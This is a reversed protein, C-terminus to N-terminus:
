DGPRGVVVARSPLRCRARGRGSRRHVAPPCRPRLRRRARAGPTGTGTRPDDWFIGQTGNGHHVDWDVILVREGQDALAAAGIAVNNLLCFGMATDALAHHGPPRAAVFAAIGDGARLADLAALVGGAALLATDWSDRAAVTDADLHGGGSACFAALAELYRPDHVRALEETLARRPALAVVADTLGAAEIGALSARVRDRREPHGTGTDHRDLEPWGAVVLVGTV